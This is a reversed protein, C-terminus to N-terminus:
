LGARYAELAILVHALTGFTACVIAAIGFVWRPGWPLNTIQRSVVVLVVPLLYYVYRFDQKCAHPQALLAVILSCVSLACLLTYFPANKNGKWLERWLGIIFLTVVLYGGWLSATSLYKIQPQRSFLEGSLGTKFLYLWFNRRGATDKWASMYPAFSNDTIAWPIFNEKTIAILLGPNAHVGPFLLQEFDGAQTSLIKPMLSAIAVGALACTLGIYTWDPSRDLTNGRKRPWCHPLLIVAATAVLPLATNKVLCGLALYVSACVLDGKAKSRLWRSLYLIGAVAIAYLMVDNGIRAAHVVNMPWLAFLFAGLTAARGTLNERIFILGIAIFLQFLAWSLVQMIQWSFPVGEHAFHKYVNAALLYYLPPQHYEWGGDIPPLAGRKAVFAIFDAHGGREFVDYTRQTPPTTSLYALSVVTFIAFAVAFGGKLKFVRLLLLSWAAATGLLLLDPVEVLADDQFSLGLARPGGRNLVMAEITNSGQRLFDSARVQLGHSPYCFPTNNPLSVSIGNLTLAELCDDPALRLIDSGDGLYNFSGSVVFPGPTNGYDIEQPTINRRQAPSTLTAHWGSMAEPDPQPAGTLDRKIFRFLLGRPGNRNHIHATFRNNGKVVLDGASRTFGKGWDCWNESDLPHIPTGNIELSKLCEDPVIQLEAQPNGNFDFVGEVQFEGVAGSMEREEPGITQASPASTALQLRWDTTKPAYRHQAAWSALAGILLAAAVTRIFARLSESIAM